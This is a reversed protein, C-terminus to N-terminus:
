CKSGGAGRMAEVLREHLEQYDLSVVRDTVSILYSGPTIELAIEGAIARMRRRCQNRVVAGGVKRNVAFAVAVGSQGESAPSFRVRIPGSQARFRSRALEQFLLRGRVPAIQGSL